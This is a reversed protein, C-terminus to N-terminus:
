LLPSLYTLCDNHIVVCVHLYCPRQAYCSLSTLLLTKTQLLPSMCTVLDKHATARICLENHLPSFIFLQQFLDFMGRSFKYELFITQYKYFLLISLFSLKLVSLPKEINWIVSIM